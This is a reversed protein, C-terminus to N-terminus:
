TSQKEPSLSLININNFVLILLVLNILLIYSCLIIPAINTLTVSSFEMIEM